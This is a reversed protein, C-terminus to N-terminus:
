IGVMHWHALKHSSMNLNLDKFYFSRLVFQNIFPYIISTISVAGYIIRDLTFLECLYHFTAWHYTKNNIENTIKANLSNKM